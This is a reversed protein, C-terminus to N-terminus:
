YIQALIEHIKQKSKNLFELRKDELFLKIVEDKLIVGREENAQNKLNFPMIKLQFRKAWNDLFKIFTFSKKLTSLGETTHELFEDNLNNIRIFEQWTKQGRLLKLGKLWFNFYPDEQELKLNEVNMAGESLYFSLCIKDQKNEFTPRVALIKAIGACFLRSLWLQNEKTIIFLDIDSELRWNYGGILNAAAVSKVGPFLSFIFAFRKAKKLKKLTYNHRQRRIKIIEARNELCYFGEKQILINKEILQDLIEIVLDLNYNKDIFKWLEYSTLPYSFLDLFVIPALITQISQYNITHNSALM